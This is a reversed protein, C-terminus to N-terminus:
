PRSEGKSRQSVIRWAAAVFALCVGMLEVLDAGYFLGIQNNYLPELYHYSTGKLVTFGVATMVGMILLLNRLLNARFIFCALIIFLLIVFVAGILFMSQIERRGEYWGQAHALCRGITFIMAHLDLPTNFVQFAFLFGCLMWLWRERGLSARAVRFIMM